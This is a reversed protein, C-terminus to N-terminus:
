ALKMKKMNWRTRFGKTNSCLSTPLSKTNNHEYKMSWLNDLNMYSKYAHWFSYFVHGQGFRDHLKISRKNYM